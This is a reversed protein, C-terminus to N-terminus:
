ASQQSKHEALYKGVALRVVANLSAGTVKSHARVEERMVRPLVVSVVTNEPKLRPDSM